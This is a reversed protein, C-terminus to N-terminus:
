KGLFKLIQSKLEDKECTINHKIKLEKLERIPNPIETHSLDSLKNIIEFDDLNSDIDCLSSLVDKSFKYPSATSVIVTTTSDKTDKFYVVDHVADKNDNLANVYATIVPPLPDSFNVRQKKNGIINNM